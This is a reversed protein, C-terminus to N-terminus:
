SFAGANERNLLLILITISYGALALGWCVPYPHLLAVHVVALPVVLVGTALTLLRGWRRRGLVGLGAATAALGVVLQGAAYIVLITSADGFWTGFGRRLIATAGGLGAFFAGLVAFSLGCFICVAGLSFNLVLVTTVASSGPPHAPLARREEEPEKELVSHREFLPRRFRNDM